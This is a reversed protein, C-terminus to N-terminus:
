IATRVQINQRINNNHYAVLLDAALRLDPAEYLLVVEGCFDIALGSVDDSTPSAHGQMLSLMEARTYCRQELPFLQWASHM